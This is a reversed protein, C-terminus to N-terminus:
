EEDSEGFIIRRAADSSSETNKTDEKKPKLRDLFDRFLGVAVSAELKDSFVFCLVSLLIAGIFAIGGLEEALPLPYSFFVYLSVLVAMVMSVCSILLAARSSVRAEQRHMHKREAKAADLAYKRIDAHQSKEAMSLFDMERAHAVESL